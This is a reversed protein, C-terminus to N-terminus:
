RSNQTDVGPAPFGLPASDLWIRSFRRMYSKQYQQLYAIGYAGASEGFLMVNTLDASTVSDAFYRLKHIALEMDTISRSTMTDTAPDEQGFVNALLCNESYTVANGFFDIPPEKSISPGNLCSPPMSQFSNGFTRVGVGVDGREAITVYPVGLLSTVQIGNCTSHRRSHQKFRMCSLM